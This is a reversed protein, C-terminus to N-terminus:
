RGPYMSPQPWEVPQAFMDKSGPSLAAALAEIVTPYQAFTGPQKQEQQMAFFRALQSILQMHEPSIEQNNVLAHVDPSSQNPTLLPYLWEMGNINSSENLWTSFGGRNNLQPGLFGTLPMSAQYLPLGRGPQMSNDFPGGTPIYSSPVPLDSLPM